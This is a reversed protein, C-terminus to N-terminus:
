HGFDEDGDPMRVRRLALFTAAGEVCEELAGLSQQFVRRLRFALVSEFPVDKIKERWISSSPKAITLATAFGECM